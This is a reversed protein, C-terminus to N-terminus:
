REQTQVLHKVWKWRNVAAKGIYFPHVLMKSITTPGWLEKGKPTPIKESNLWQAVSRLSHGEDIMTFMRRVVWAQEPNIEYGTREKKQGNWQYGYLPKGQGFLYGNKAKALRGDQSRKVFNNREEEAIFGYVTRIIEGAMSDDDAHEDPELTVITVGYYLLEERIIEQHLRKRALRDLKYLILVDFAKHKAAERLATLKPRERFEMGTHTERYIYKQDLLLKEELCFQQGQEVQMDLSWGDEQRETSVRAYIAARRGAYRLPQQSMM